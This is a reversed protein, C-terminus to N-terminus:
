IWSPFWLRRSLAEPSLPLGLYIPMWFVFALLILFVITVGLARLKRQYSHLWQDVLRAIALGAFVSSGM